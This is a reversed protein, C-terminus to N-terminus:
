TSPYSSRWGDVSLEGSASVPPTKLGFLRQSLGGSLRFFEYKGGHKKRTTSYPDKYHNIFYDGNLHTTYDEMYGLGVLNKKWQEGSVFSKLMWALEDEECLSDFGLFQETHLPWCDVCRFIYYTWPFDESKACSKIDLVSWFDLSNIGFIVRGSVLM